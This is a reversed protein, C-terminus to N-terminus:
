LGLGMQETHQGESQQGATQQGETDGAQITRELSLIAALVGPLADRCILLVQEAKRLPMILRLLDDSM